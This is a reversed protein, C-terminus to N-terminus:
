AAAPSATAVIAVVGNAISVVVAVIFAIVVIVSAVVDVAVVLILLLHLQFFFAKPIADRLEFVRHSIGRNVFFPPPYAGPM